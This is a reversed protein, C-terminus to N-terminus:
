PSVMVKVAKETGDLKRLLLGAAGALDVRHTILEKLRLRGSAVLQMTPDWAPVTTWPFVLLPTQRRPHVASRRSARQRAVSCSGPLALLADPSWGGPWAPEVSLIAMCYRRLLTSPM